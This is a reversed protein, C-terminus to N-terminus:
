LNVENVKREKFIVLLSFLFNSVSVIVEDIFKSLVENCLLINVMLVMIGVDMLGTVIRSSYFLLIQNWFNKKEEEVPSDTKSAHFVFKSNTFFAFLVSFFWAAITALAVPFHIFRFGAFLLINLVTTFIGWFGFLIIKRLLNKSIKM